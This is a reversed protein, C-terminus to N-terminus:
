YELDKKEWNDFTWTSPETAAKHRYYRVKALLEDRKGGQPVPVGRADLYAKLRSDSWTEIASNFLDDIKMRAHETARAFENGAKSTAAGFADTASAVPEELLSSRHKRALAVLESRTAGQPVKIHHEDFFKKFDAESWANFLADALSSQAAAASSSASASARQAELSALRANRRVSAILKDRTTPQPVRYGRGDLYDKLDSESWQDYLWDGPYLSTQGLKKAINEYNDRAAALLKDRKSPQPTTIGHKDLFAKLQSDSWSRPTTLLHKVYSSPLACRDFIWDKVNNLSESVQEASQALPIQVHSEWHLKVLDELDKRDAPSPYPIDLDDV